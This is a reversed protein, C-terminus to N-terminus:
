KSFFPRAYHSMGTIEASESASAPLDSSTLLKLSAQGVHHFGTEVLFIFTPWAHYYTDTIGAAQSASAPSDSSDLLCLSCYALITDSHELRPLLTPSQRFYYYYYIISFFIFDLHMTVWVLFFTEDLAMSLVILWM